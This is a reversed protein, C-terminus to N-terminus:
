PAATVTGGRSPMARASLQASQSPLASLAIRLGVRDGSYGARARDRHTARCDGASDRFSGGRIVHAGGAGPPPDIIVPKPYPRYSDQCWEAVNGLMDHLGWSNPRLEKLPHSAADSTHAYWAVEDLNMPGDDAGGARCAYEWESETPLRARLGPVARDLRELFDQSAEWSVREVPLDLDQLASPTSGYVSAWLAQSCESDALWFGRTFTVQHIDEDRSRPRQDDPSGMLFRGPPCYRFRQAYGLLTVDAYAGYADRRAGNPLAEESRPGPDAPREHEVSEAELAVAVVPRKATATATPERAMAKVIGPAPAHAVPKAPPRLAKGPSAPPDLYAVQSAAPSRISPAPSPLLAPAAPDDAGPLPADDLVPASGPKLPPEVAASALTTPDPSAHPSSATAAATASPPEPVPQASVPPDSAMPSPTGAALPQERMRAAVTASPTAGDDSATNAPSSPPSTAVPAAPAEVVAVDTAAMPAVAPAMALDRSDLALRPHHRLAFGATAALALGAAVATAALRRRRLSGWGGAGYVRGDLLLNELAKLLADPSTPRDAPRQALCSLVLTELDPHINRNLARLAGCGRAPVERSGSEYAAPIVGTLMEHFIAGLSYIDSRSDCRQGLAREPSAYRLDSGPNVSVDEGALGVQGFDSLKLVGDRGILMNAPKLDRHVIGLLAAAALGRTAQLMLDFATADGLRTGGALRAALDAGEVSEMVVYPHGHRVSAFYIQAVHPSSIQAVAVAERLFRKRFGSGEPLEVDLVKIAVARDLSLQRARYVSGHPGRGLVEGIEFDGWTDGSFPGAHQPSGQRSAAPLSEQRSPGNAAGGEAHSNDMPHRSDM